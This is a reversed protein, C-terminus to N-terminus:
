ISATPFATKESLGTICSLDKVYLLYDVSDFHGLIPVSPLYSGNFTKCSVVQM